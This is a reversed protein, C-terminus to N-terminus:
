APTPSSPSSARPVLGLRGRPLRLAASSTRRCPTARPRARDGHRACAYMAKDMRTTASFVPGVTRRRYILIAMGVLTCFGAVAGVSAAVAHYMDESIGVAETWSERSSCGSRRPRRRRVPHRLPVAPQGLRLLRNEYLQSSRTTWGFKDYRYRWLARRRVGRPLRVARGGVPLVNMSRAGVPVDASSSAAPGTALAPTPTRVPWASRKPRHARRPSGAVADREDGRLAPLTDCSAACCTPTRRRRRGRLALRSCSSGPGTTSCCSGARDRDIPPPSSWCSARPPRAARRRDSSSGPRATPRSSRAAAGRRAQPHRRPRLLHPLPLLANTTSPRRRLRQPSSRCRRASAAHDLFPAASRRRTRAAPRGAAAARARHLLEEDPYGLLVSAVALHAAAATARSAGRPRDASTVTAESRRERPPFLGDPARATGTSCTSGRPRTTRPSSRTPPRGTRSCRSTRWRSRRRAAPGRASRAPAAWARAATTTSAASPPSSRSPTRRSPTRRRSSTASTTSPSARAAPVHRVDARGTM